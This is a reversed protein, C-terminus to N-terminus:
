SNKGEREMLIRVLIKPHLVQKSKILNAFYKDTDQHGLRM